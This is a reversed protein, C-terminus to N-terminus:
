WTDKGYRAERLKTMENEWNQAVEWNEYRRAVTIQAQVAEAKKEWARVRRQSWEKTTTKM